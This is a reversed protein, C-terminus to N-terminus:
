GKLEEETGMFDPMPEESSNNVGTRKLVIGITKLITKVDNAFSIENIYKLDWSFRESWTTANRGHVQAYGTLGPRVDHRHRQEDNYRELYEVLLPRPGVISMDGKLINFLGPLEDLSSSRLKSGFPTLRESDPLPKGSSDTADRMTRFKYLTFIKENLGPRKQRFLVPSGLKVRVLVALVLFVPSLLILSFLSLLFDFARKITVEYFTKKRM